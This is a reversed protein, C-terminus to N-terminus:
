QALRDLAARNNKAAGKLVARVEERTDLGAHQKANLRAILVDESDTRGVDDTLLEREDASKTM